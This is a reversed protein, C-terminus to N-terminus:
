SNEFEWKLAESLTDYGVGYNYAIDRLIQDTLEGMDELATAEAIADELTYATAVLTM